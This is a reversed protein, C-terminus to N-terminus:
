ISVDQCWVGFEVSIRSYYTSSATVLQADDFIATILEGEDLLFMVDSAPVVKAVATTSTALTSSAVLNTSAIATATSTGVSWRTTPVFDATRRALLYATSADCLKPGTTNTYITRVTGTATTPITGGVVLGDVSQAVTTTGTSTMSATMTVTDTGSDGFIINNTFTWPNGITTRELAGLAKSGNGFVLMVVLVALILINVLNNKLFNM